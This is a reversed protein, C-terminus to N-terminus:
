AIGARDMEQWIREPKIVGYAKFLMNTNKHGLMKAVVEATVGKDLMRVAFTRRACHSTLEFPIGALSQLEKLYANYKQNSPLPIAGGYKSLIGKAEALLPILCTLPKSATSKKRVITIMKRNGVEHVHKASDFAALEAYSMGTAAAFLFADRVARLRPGPELDAFIALEVNRLYVIEKQITALRFTDLPCFSCHGNSRALRVAAKLFGLIKAQTNIDLVGEKALYRLFASCHQHTFEPPEIRQHGAAQLFGFIKAAYNKRIKQTSPALDTRDVNYALFAEVIAWVNMPGASLGQWHNVVDQASVIAGKSQLEVCCQLLATRITSLARNYPVSSEGKVVQKKSMWCKKPIRIGTSVDGARKGLITVRLYLTGVGVAKGQRYVFLVKMNVCFLYLNILGM